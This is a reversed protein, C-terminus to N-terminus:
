CCDFSFGGVPQADIFEAVDLSAGAVDLSAGSDQAQSIAM